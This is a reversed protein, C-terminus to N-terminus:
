RNINNNIVNIPHGELYSKLNDLAIDMLRKRSEKPAWSIHPTIICNTASLLANDSNIPETSVVDVAAGGVKGNNLAEALDSEEILPGRSTNIIMVGDKMKKISSANIIGKTSEFLPCHLSIVDSEGFLEDLDVYKIDDSVLNEDRHEDFALVKMGFAVAIQAVARGIRGFGVIGLKKEALEILPYNWFCWDLNNTWEGKKVAENHAGVHHCLELILAFTMQAVASTGYTPINTVVIGREKAADIDVVNYGTALVGIYKVNPVSELILRTIPTKNTFVVDADKINEIVKHPEKYDYTTRDYVSLEGLREFDAWSLDGPSTTYGDLVVIKM